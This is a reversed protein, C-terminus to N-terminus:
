QMSFYGPYAGHARIGKQQSLYPSESCGTKVTKRKHCVAIPKTKSMMKRYRNRSAEAHEEKPAAATGDAENMSGTEEALTMVPALIMLMIMMIGLLLGTIRKHITM